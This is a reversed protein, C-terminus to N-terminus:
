PSTHINDTWATPHAPNKSSPQCARPQERLLKRGPMAGFDGPPETRVRVRESCLRRPMSMLFVMWGGAVLAQSTAHSVRLRRAPYFTRRDIRM